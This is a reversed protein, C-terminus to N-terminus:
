PSHPGRRRSRAPLRHQANSTPEFLESALSSVDREDSGDAPATLVALLALVALAYGGFRAETGDLGAPYTLAAEDFVQRIGAGEVLAQLVAGIAEGTFPKRPLRARDAVIRGYVEEWTLKDLGRYGAQVTATLKPDARAYLITLVEMADWVPNNALTLLDTTAVRGIAEVPPLASSAEVECAILAFEEDFVDSQGMLYEALAKGFEEKTKWHYNLGNRTVGARKAVRALAVDRFPDAARESEFFEEAGAVLIRRRTDAATRDNPGSPKPM